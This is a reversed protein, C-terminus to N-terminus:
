KNLNNKESHVESVNNALDKPIHSSKRERVAGM